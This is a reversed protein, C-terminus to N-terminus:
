MCTSMHQARGRAKLATVLASYTVWLAVIISRPVWLIAIDNYQRSKGWVDAVSTEMSTQLAHRSVVVKMPSLDVVSHHVIANQTAFM